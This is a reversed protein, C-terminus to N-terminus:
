GQSYWEQRWSRMRAIEREQANVIDRAIDRIQQNRSENLAVSAMEIASEHHPIMADIFAKDFPRQRALEAPETMGMAEMGRRDISSPIQATGYEAKKISRLEEIETEQTTVIDEALGRIEQHEANELAVEAMEVAGRHHPVMADIFARDSYKGDEEVM